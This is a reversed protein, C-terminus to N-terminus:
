GVNWQEPKAQIKIKLTTTKSVRKPTTGTVESAFRIPERPNFEEEIIKRSQQVARFMNLDNM